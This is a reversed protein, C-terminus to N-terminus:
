AGRVVYGAGRLIEMFAAVNADERNWGLEDYFYEEILSFDDIGEIYEITSDFAKMNGGFLERGYLFRDNLSFSSKLKGPRKPAAAPKEENETAESNNTEAPTETENLSTEEMVFDDDQKEEEKNSATEDMVIDDDKTAVEEKVAEEEKPAEFSPESATMTEPIDDFTLIIDDEESLALDVETMESSTVSMENADDPQPALPPTLPRIAQGTFDVQSPMGVAARPAMIFDVMPNEMAAPEPAPAAKATEASLTAAQAALSETKDNLLKYTEPLPNGNRIIRLLGEIEIAKELMSTVM